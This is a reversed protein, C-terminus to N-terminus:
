GVTLRVTCANPRQLPKNPLRRLIYSSAIDTRIM